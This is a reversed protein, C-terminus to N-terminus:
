DRQWAFLLSAGLLAILGIPLFLSMGMAAFQYLAAATTFGVEFLWRITFPDDHWESYYLRYQVAYALATAGITASALLLFSLAFRRETVLNRGLRRAICAAPVFAVVGSVFFLAAVRAILYTSEWERYLLGAVASLAMLAGWILSAALLVGLTNRRSAKSAPLSM